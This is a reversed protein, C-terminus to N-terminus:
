WRRPRRGVTRVTSGPAASSGTASMAPRGSWRAASRAIPTSEPSPPGARPVRSRARSAPMAAASRASDGTPKWHGGATGVSILRSCAARPVSRQKPCRILPEPQGMMGGDANQPLLRRIANVAMRFKAVDYTPLPFIVPEAVGRLTWTLAAGSDAEAVDIQTVDTLPYAEVAVEDMIGSGERLTLLRAATAALAEHPNGRLAVVPKETAQRSQDLAQQLRSPLNEILSPGEGIM